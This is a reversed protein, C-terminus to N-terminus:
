LFMQLAKHHCSDSHLVAELPTRITLLKGEAAAQLLLQATSSRQSWSDLIKVNTYSVCPSCFSYHSVMEKRMLPLLNHPQKETKSPCINRKKGKLATARLRSLRSAGHRLKKSDLLWPALYLHPPPIIPVEVGVHGAKELRQGRGARDTHFPCMSGQWWTQKESLKYVLLQLWM